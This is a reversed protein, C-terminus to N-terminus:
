AKEVTNTAVIDVDLNLINRILTEGISVPATVVLKAVRSACEFLMNKPIPRTSRVSLVPIKGQKVRVTTFFDRVPSTVEKVSFEKGRECKANKIDIIEKDRMRVTISCNEPCQVCIVEQIRLCEKM